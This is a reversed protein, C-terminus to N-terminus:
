VGCFSKQSTFSTKSSAFFANVNNVNALFKKLQGARHQSVRSVRQRYIIEREEKKLKQKSRHLRVTSCSTMFAFSVLLQVDAYHFTWVVVFLQCVSVTGCLVNDAEYEELKVFTQRQLPQLSPLVRTFDYVNM